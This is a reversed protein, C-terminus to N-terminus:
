TLHVKPDIEDAGGQEKPAAAGAQLSKLFELEKRAAKLLKDTSTAGHYFMTSWSVFPTGECFPEGSEKAVPCGACAENEYYLKCLGCTTISDVIPNVKKEYNSVLIDWKDISAQLAEDQTMDPPFHVKLEPTGTAKGGNYFIWVKARRIM